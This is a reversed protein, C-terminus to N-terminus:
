PHMRGAGRVFAGSGAPTLVRVTVDVAHRAYAGRMADGVAVADTRHDVLAVSSSGAGSLSAGVAGAGRAAVIADILGPLLAARYPQHLTDNFAWALHDTEGRALAHSLYVARALNGVADRHSVVDPLVGRSTHTALASVPSVVVARLGALDGIRLAHVDRGDRVACCLGGLVAPAVNDPHGEIGTAFALVDQPHHARGDLADAVLVGAVVAAASSGLGRATPIDSRFSGRVSRDPAGRSKWRARMSTLVLDDVDPIRTFLADGHREVADTSAGAAELTVELFLGLALSLSDFGPGLNSTSCPVVVAVLSGGLM